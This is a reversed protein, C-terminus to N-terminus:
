SSETPPVFEASFASLRKTWGRTFGTSTGEPGKAMRSQAVITGGRDKKVTLNLKPRQTTSRTIKLTSDVHLDTYRCIGFVQNNYLIGEVIEKEKLLALDCSIIENLDVDYTPKIDTESAVIFKATRNDKMISELTGRILKAASRTVIRIDRVGNANRSKNFSVLDGRQPYQSESQVMEAMQSRKFYLRSKVGSTDTGSGDAVTINFLAGTDETLLICGLESSEVRIDDAKTKLDWRSKKETSNQQGANSTAAPSEIKKKETENTKPIINKTLKLLVIGKCPNTDTTKTSIQADKSEHFTAELVYRKGNKADKGIIFKITDGKQLQRINSNTMSIDSLSVSLLESIELTKDPVLVFLINLNSMIDKIVGIAEVGTNVIEPVHRELVVLNSVAIHGSRRVQIADFSVIDDLSPPITDKVISSLSSRDFRVTKITKQKSSVRKGKKIIGDSSDGDNSELEDNSLLDGDNAGEEDGCSAASDRNTDTMAEDKEKPSNKNGNSDELVKEICVLGGFNSKEVLSYRLTGKGITEVLKEIVDAEKSSQVDHFVIKTDFTSDLLRHLM